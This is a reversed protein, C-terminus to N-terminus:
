TMRLDVNGFPNAARRAAQAPTPAPVSTNASAAASGSVSPMPMPAAIPARAGWPRAASAVAMSASTAGATTPLPAAGREQSAFGGANEGRRAMAEIQVALVLAVALWVPLPLALVGAWLSAEWVTVIYAIALGLAAVHVAIGGLRRRLGVYVPQWALLAGVLLAYLILPAQSWESHLRALAGSVALLAYLWFWVIGFVVPRPAWRPRPREEYDRRQDGGLAALIARGLLALVAILLAFFVVIEGNSAVVAM